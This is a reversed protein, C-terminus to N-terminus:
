KLTVEPPILHLLPVDIVFFDLGERKILPPVIFSSFFLLRSVSCIYPWPDRRPQIGLTVTSAPQRCYAVARSQEARTAIGLPSPGLFSQAPLHWCCICFGSGDERWLPRGVFFLVTVTLSYYIDPRSGWIPAKNWSLSASQGDTTVYSESETEPTTSILGLDTLSEDSTWFSNLTHATIISQLQLSTDIFGIM